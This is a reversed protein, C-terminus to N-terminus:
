EGSAFVGQMRAVKRWLAVQNDVGFINKSSRDRVHKVLDDRKKLRKAIAKHVTQFPQKKDRHEYLALIYLKQYRRALEQIFKHSDFTDPMLKVIKPYIEELAEYADTAM